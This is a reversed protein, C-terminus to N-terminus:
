KKKYKPKEEEVVVADQNEGSVAEQQAAILELQSIPQEEMKPFHDKSAYHYDAIGAEILQLAEDADVEQVSNARYRYGYRGNYPLSKIIIKEKAM